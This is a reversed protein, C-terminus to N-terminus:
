RNVKMRGEEVIFVGRVSATAAASEWPRKRLLVSIL